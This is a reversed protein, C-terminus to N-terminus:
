LGNTVVGRGALGGLLRARHQGGSRRRDSTQM